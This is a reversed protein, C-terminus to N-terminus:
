NHANTRRQSTCFPNFQSSCSISRILTVIRPWHEQATEPLTGAAAVGTRAERNDERVQARGSMEQYSVIFLPFGFSTLISGRHYTM